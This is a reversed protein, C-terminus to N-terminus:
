GPASKPSFGTAIWRRIRRSRSPSPVPGWILDYQKFIRAWHELDSQAIAADMLEILEAGNARRAAATSFRSDEILRDLALARCLNPWDRVPELLCLFLRRGDRAVYHNVLPNIAAKRTWKPLFQADCLAAQIACGNRGSAM